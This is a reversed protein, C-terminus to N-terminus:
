NIWFIFKVFPPLGYPGFHISVQQSSDAVFATIGFKLNRWTWNHRRDATHLFHLSFNIFKKNISLFLNTTIFNILKTHIGNAPKMVNSSTHLNVKRYSRSAQRKLYRDTHENTLAKNVHACFLQWQFIRKIRQAFKVSKITNWFHCHLNDISWKFNWKLVDFVWLTKQGNPTGIFIIEKNTEALKRSCFM